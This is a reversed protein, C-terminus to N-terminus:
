TCDILVRYVFFFFFFFGLSPGSGNNCFAVFDMVADMWFGFWLVFCEVFCMFSSGYGYEYEYRLLVLRVRTGSTALKACSPDLLILM